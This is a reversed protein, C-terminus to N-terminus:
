SSAERVFQDKGQQLNQSEIILSYLPDEAKQRNAINYAQRRNRPLSGASKASMEEGKEKSVKEIAEKPPLSKM